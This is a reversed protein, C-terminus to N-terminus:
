FPLDDKCSEKGIISLEFRIIEPDLYIKVPIQIWVSFM